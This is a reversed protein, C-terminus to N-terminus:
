RSALEAREGAFAGDLDDHWALVRYPMDDQGRAIVAEAEVRRGDDFHVHVFIRTAKNRRTAANTQEPGLIAVVAKEDQPDAERQRIVAALRDPTMGPLAALVMSPAHMVDIGAEGSFVTTYALARSVLAPPLGRVLWLEDTSAFRAQRPDYSLGAARYLSVEKDAAGSQPPTRWGGVSDAYDAAKDAAAGLATFLGALLPKPAANLDIRAGESLYAVQVAARNLRFRFGGHSPSPKDKPTDVQAATLALAASITAEARIRDDNAAFARTTNVLYGAYIGALAALAGLIWLVAVVAFGDSAHDHRPRTM